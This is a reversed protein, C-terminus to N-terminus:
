ATVTGVEDVAKGLLEDQAILMQQNAQYIRMAATMETMAAVDDVNSQELYGGKVITATAPMSSVTPDDPAYLLDGVKTMVTGPAFEEVDLKGVAKGGSTITGDSAITVSDSSPLTIQAGNSDLVFNGSSTTLRGLGDVHLAGGRSYCVGDPTRVKLFGDGDLAVDLGRNTQQFTGQSFDVSVRDIGSDLGVGGIPMSSSLAALLTGQNVTEARNLAAVFGSVATTDQKYGPVRLNELNRAIVDERDSQMRMATAASEMGRLM